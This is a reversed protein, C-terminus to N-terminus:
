KLDAHERPEIRGSNAPLTGGPNLTDDTRCQVQPQFTVTKATNNPYGHFGRSKQHPLSSNIPVGRPGHPRVSTPIRLRSLPDKPESARLLVLRMLLRAASNSAPAMTTVKAASGASANKLRLSLSV